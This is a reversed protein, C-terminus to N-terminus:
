LDYPSQLESTHEESRDLRREEAAACALAEADVDARARHRHAPRLRAVDQLHADDVDLRPGARVRLVPALREPAVCGGPPAEVVLDSSRRTPFLAPLAP